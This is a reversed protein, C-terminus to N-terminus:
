NYPDQVAPVSQSFQVSHLTTGCCSQFASTCPADPPNFHWKVGRAGLEDAVKEQDM